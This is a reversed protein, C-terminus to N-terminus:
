FLYFLKVMEAQLRTPFKKRIEKITERDNRICIVQGVSYKNLKSLVSPNLKLSSGYTVPNEQYTVTVGSVDVESVTGDIGIL